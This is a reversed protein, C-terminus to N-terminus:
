LEEDEEDDTGEQLMARVDKVSGEAASMAAACASEPTGGNMRDMSAELLAPLNTGTIHYIDHTGAIRNVVNFPTGFYLDTFFVINGEDEPRMAAEIRSQLADPADEPYLGFAEIGEQPGLLMSVASLLGKALDGHSALFFRM